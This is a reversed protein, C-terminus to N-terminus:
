NLPYQEPFLTHWLLYSVDEDNVDESGTFDGSGQLIYQEPFLTHWLLLAVDADDVRSDGNLDGPTLTRIHGCLTCAPNEAAEFVHAQTGLIEGCSCEYWHQATDFLWQSADEPSMHGVPDVYDDTFSAGCVICTYITYGFDTCTPPVVAEECNHSISCAGHNSPYGIQFNMDVNGDIGNIIGSRSYQWIHFEEEYDCFTRYQAVWRYWNDFCPDTLYTTWWYLNAYIGVPYGAASIKECFATAIAAHDSGITSDDELDYYIPYSLTKGEILRLVHDAEISAQEPTTAYSYLYVGYPIGLRQCESANYEFCRDDQEPINEGYGCRLIAFGVGDAAVAEWDIKGQHHSVDIGLLTAEPHYPEEEDENMFSPLDIPQGDEYRWSNAMDGYEAALASFALLVIMCLAATLASFRKM